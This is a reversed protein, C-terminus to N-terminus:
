LSCYQPCFVCRGVGVQGLNTRELLVVCCCCTCFSTVSLVTCCHQLSQVKLGNDFIEEWVVYSKGIAGVLDLISASISFLM